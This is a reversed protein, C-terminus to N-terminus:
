GTAGREQHAVRPALAAGHTQVSDNTPVGAEPHAAPEARGVQAMGLADDRVPDQVTASRLRGDRRTRVELNAGLALLVFLVEGAGRFTLHPDFVLLAALMWAVTTLTTGIAGAIPVGSWALRRGTRAAVALLGLVAAVMVLGGTWLAWAYGSEIYVWGLASERAPVRGATRVGFLWNYDAQIQPWFYQRLNELRGYEGTWSPPLGTVPDAAALRAAIVPQLASLAVLFLVTGAVAVRRVTGTTLAFACGAVVLGVVISAQGSALAFLSLAAAAPWLLRARRPLRLALAAAGTAAYLMLDGYAIPNGLTSTARNESLSYGGEGPPILAALADIVPGVGVAQLVGILGVLGATIMIATLARRAAQATRLVIRVAAYVVVLKWLTLAYFLDDTTPARGHAYMWLLTTVSGTLAVLVVAADLHHLRDAAPRGARLWWRLVVVALGGLVPLLLVENLRLNPVVAGRDLGALLPAFGIYGILAAVPYLATLLVLVLGGSLVLAVTPAAALVPTLLVGLALLAGATRLEAAGLSGPASRVRRELM